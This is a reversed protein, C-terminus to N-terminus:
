CSNLKVFAEECRGTLLFKKNKNQLETIPRAIKSFGEVFIRYYGALGMFSRVNHVNTPAPWELIAEIKAPDGSNWGWNYCTGFLSDRVQLLFM